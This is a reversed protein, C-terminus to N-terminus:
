IGQEDMSEQLLKEMEDEECIDYPLDGDNNVAAVNANNRLLYRFYVVFGNENVQIEYVLICILKSTCSSKTLGNKM